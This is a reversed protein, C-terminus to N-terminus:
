SVKSFKTYQLLMARVSHEPKNAYSCQLRKNCLTKYRTDGPFDLVFIEGTIKRDTDYSAQEEM